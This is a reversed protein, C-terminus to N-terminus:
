SEEFHDGYNKKFNKKLNENFIEKFHKLTNVLIEEFNSFIIVM